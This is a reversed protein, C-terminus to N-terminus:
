AAPAEQCGSSEM